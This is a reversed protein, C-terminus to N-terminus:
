PNLDFSTSFLRPLVIKDKSMCDSSCVVGRCFNCYNKKIIKTMSGLSNKMCSHCIKDKDHTLENIYKEVVTSTYEKKKIM